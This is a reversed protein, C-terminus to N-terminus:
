LFVSQAFGAIQCPPAAHHMEDLARVVFFDVSDRDGCPALMVWPASVRGLRWLSGVSARRKTELQGSALLWGRVAARSGRQGIQHTTLHLNHEVGDRGRERMDLGSLQARESHRANRQTPATHHGVRSEIKWACMRWREAMRNWTIARLGEGLFGGPRASPRIQTLGDASENM